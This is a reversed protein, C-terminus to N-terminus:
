FAWWISAFVGGSSLRDGQRTRARISARTSRSLPVALNLDFLHSVNERGLIESTYYQYGFGTDLKGFRRSLRGSLALGKEGAGGTDDGDSWYSGSLSLRIDAVTRPVYFGGAYSMLSSLGEQQNWTVDATMSLGSAM